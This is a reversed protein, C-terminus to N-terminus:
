PGHGLMVNKVMLVTLTNTYLTFHLTYFSNFFLVLVSHIVLESTLIRCM